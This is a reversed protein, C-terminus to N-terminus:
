SPLTTVSAVLRHIESTSEVVIYARMTGGSTRLWSSRQIPYQGSTLERALCKRRLGTDRKLYLNGACMSVGV